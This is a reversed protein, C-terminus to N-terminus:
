TDRGPISGPDPGESPGIRDTVGDLCEFRGSRSDFWPWPRLLAGHLGSCWRSSSDSGVVPNAGAHHPKCFRRRAIRGRRCAPTCPTSGRAVAKSVTQEGLLVSRWRGGAKRGPAMPTVVEKWCNKWPTDPSLRVGVKQNVALRAAVAVGRVGYMGTEDLVGVLFRVRFVENSGLCSKWKVMPARLGACWASPLPTSGEHGREPDCPKAFRGPLGYGAVKWLRVRKLPGGPFRVRAGVGANTVQTCVLRRGTPGAARIDLPDTRSDFGTKRRVSSTHQRFM